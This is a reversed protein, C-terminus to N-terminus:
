RSGNGGKPTAAEFEKLAGLKRSRFIQDILGYEMASEPSMINDRDTDQAIRDVPQGTHKALIENMMQRQHLFEEARIAIDSAQGEGVQGHPQHILIRSNPLAFRKGATGAALLVAAASAAFGMCITQVDPRVYQMVDYVAFLATSSGGPSNIYMAIDKEPDEHELLLLQANIVNAVNDDLPTGLFVIRDRLLRSYIDFSRESQGSREVVMPILFEAM